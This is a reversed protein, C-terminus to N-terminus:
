QFSLSADIHHSLDFHFLLKPGSVWGSEQALGPPKCSALPSQQTHVM